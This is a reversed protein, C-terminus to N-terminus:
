RNGNGVHGHAHAHGHAIDKRAIIMRLRTQASFYHFFNQDPFTANEGVPVGVGVPVNSVPFLYPAHNRIRWFYRGLWM